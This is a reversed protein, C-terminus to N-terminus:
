RPLLPPSNRESRLFSEVDATKICQQNILQTLCSMRSVRSADDVLNYWSLMTVPGLSVCLPCCACEACLHQLTQSGTHESIKECPIYHLLGTWLQDLIM